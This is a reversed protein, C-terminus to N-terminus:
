QSRQWVYKLTCSNWFTNSLVWWVNKELGKYKDAMAFKDSAAMTSSLARASRALGFATFNPSRPILLSLSRCVLRSGVNSVVSMQYSASEGRGPGWFTWSLAPSPSSVLYFTCSL